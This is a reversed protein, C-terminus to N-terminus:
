QVAWALGVEATTNLVLNLDTSPTPSATASYGLEGPFTDLSNEAFLYSQSESYILQLFACVTDTLGLPKSGVSAQKRPNTASSSPGPGSSM